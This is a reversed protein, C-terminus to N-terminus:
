RFIAAYRPAFFRAFAKVEPRRYSRPSILMLHQMDLEPIPDFCARIGPRDAALRVNQVGLGRGSAIAAELLDIEAFVQVIRSQPVHRLLWDHLAPPVGPRMFSVFRHDAMEEVSRPLGYREAYRDSGFLAFRATSIKRCILDPDVPNRTLRLAIDAEGGMLDLPTVSPLFDFSVEPHREAFADFIAMARPSFNRNVATIRIMRPAALAAARESLATAAHEINEALPLIDLAAATPHFGRTDKDFLVLGLEHELAEIRRAVTPQAMGLGKSAALTSGKRVVALFVRLDSWNRLSSKM